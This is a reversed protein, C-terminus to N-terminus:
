LSFASSLCWSVNPSFMKNTHTDQTDQTLNYCVPCTNYKPQFHAAFTHMWIVVNVHALRGIVSKRRHTAMGKYGQMSNLGIPNICPAVKNTFGLVWQFTTWQGPFYLIHKSTTVALKQVVPLAYLLLLLPWCWAKAWVAHDEGPKPSSPILDQLDEISASHRTNREPIKSEKQM